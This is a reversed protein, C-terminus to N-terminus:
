KQNQQLEAFAWKKTEIEKQINAYRTVIESLEPGCKQYQELRTRVSLIESEVDKIQSTLRNRIKKLAQVSDGTYMNNDVDLIMNRVKVMLSDIEVSLNKVVESNNRAFSGCFYDKILIELNDTVKTLVLVQQQFSQRWEDSTELIEQKTMNVNTVIDAVKDALRMIRPHLVSRPQSPDIDPEILCLLSLCKSFLIDEVLPLLHQGLNPETRSPKVDEPLIGLTTVPVNKIDGLNIMCSVEALTLNEKLNNVYTAEQKLAPESLCKLEYNLVLEKLVEVRISTELFKRRATETKEKVIELQAQSTKTRGSVDLVSSLKELLVM